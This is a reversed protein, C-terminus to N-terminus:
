RKEGFGALTRKMEEELEEPIGFAADPGETKRAPALMIDMLQGDPKVPLVALRKGKVEGDTLRYTDVKGMDNFPINRTIVCISPLNTDKIIGDRVFVNVLAEKVIKLEDKKDGVTQVYLVPVTDHLIKNYEPALGCAEIGPEASVATEVLGADFRIGANNVFFKNMRGAYYLAGDEGVRVLDYTNLYKEGDIEELEFFVRDDIRGCSVSPSSIHLVGTRPGDEPDYYRGENEDYIKVKIGPLPYGIAEDDRDETSLICAAGAESLGYGILGKTKLGCKSLYKDYRKKADYSVYSGGIFLLEIGSLDPSLPTKELMEFMVGACFAINARNEVFSELLEPGPKKGPLVHLRGGFALVLQINDILGYSASMDMACSTVARGRLNKFREDRLLRAVAENFGRDSLPVPKHIGSTTGSTHIIVAADDNKEATFSVPHDKYEELLEKMFLLGNIKKIKQGKRRHAYADEISFLDGPVVPIHQMIINRIGLSEKEKVLERILPLGADVDNLIIDTIGEKSIISKWRESDNFDLFYVMSVSTGTMNLAYMATIPEVACTGIMAVRAQNNGTIGLASFVRAYSDWMSFFKRYTYERKCDALAVSDLRDESYSNLEMIFKWTKQEIIEGSEIRTNIRELAKQEERLRKEEKKAEKVQEEFWETMSDLVDISVRHYPVIAQFAHFLEDNSGCYVLHSRKGAKKLAEHFSLTYRNMFDGRSTTLFVPPLNRIVEDNEPDIYKEFKRDERSMSCAFRSMFWGAPDCRDIYFAGSNLGLATFRIDPADLGIADRLKESNAMAAIYLALYAGSSDGALLVRSADAGDENMRSSVVELIRCITRLQGRVSIDDSQMYDFYYTLFGRSALARMQQRYYKRDEIIFAGGHICVAVPLKRGDSLVPRFTEMVFKQGDDTLCEEDLVSAVEYEAIRSKKEPESYKAQLRKIEKEQTSVLERVLETKIEDLICYKRDKDM